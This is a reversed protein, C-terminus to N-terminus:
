PGTQWLVITCILKLLAIKKLNELKILIKLKFKLTKFKFKNFLNKSKYWHTVVFPTWYWQLAAAWFLMWPLCYFCCFHMVVTTTQLLYSIRLVNFHNEHISTWICLNRVLVVSVSPKGTEVKAKLLQALGNFRRRVMNQFKYDLPQASFHYTFPFIKWTLKALLKLLIAFVSVFCVTFLNLFLKRLTCIFKVTSDISM